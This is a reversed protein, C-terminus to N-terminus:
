WPNRRPFFFVGIGGPNNEVPGRRNREFNARLADRKASPLSGLTGDNNDENAPVPVIFIEAGGDVFSPRNPVKM